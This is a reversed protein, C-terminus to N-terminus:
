VRAATSVYTKHNQDLRIGESDRHYREIRRVSLYKVHARPTACELSVKIRFRWNIIEAGADARGNQPASASGQFHCHVVVALPTRISLPRTLLCHSRIILLGSVRLGNADFILDPDLTEQLFPCRESRFEAHGQSLGPIFRHPRFITKEQQTSVRARWCQQTPIM